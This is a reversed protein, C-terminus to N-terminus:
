TMANTDVVAKDFVIDVIALTPDDDDDLACGCASVDAAEIGADLVHAGTVRGSCVRMARGVDKTAEETRCDSM